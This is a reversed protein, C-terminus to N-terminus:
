SKKWPRLEAVLEPKEYIFRPVPPYPPPMPLLDRPELKSEVKTAFQFISYTVVGGIGVVVGVIILSVPTLPM